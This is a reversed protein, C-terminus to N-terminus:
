SPLPGPKLVTKSYSKMDRTDPDEGYTNESEAM